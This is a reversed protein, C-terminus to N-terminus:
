PKMRLIRNNGMDVVYLWDNEWTVGHPHILRIRADGQGQGLITTVTRTETDM